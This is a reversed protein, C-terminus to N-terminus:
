AKTPLTLHTYSVAGDSPIRVEVSLVEDPIKFHCRDGPFVQDLISVTADDQELTGKFYYRDHENELSGPTKIQIDDQDDLVYDWEDNDHGRPYVKVFDHHGVYLFLTTDGRSGNTGSVKDNQPLGNDGYKQPPVWWRVAEKTEDITITFRVGVPKWNDDDKSFMYLNRLKELVVCFQENTPVVVSMYDGGDSDQWTGSPNTPYEVGDYMFRTKKGGSDMKMKFGFSKIM